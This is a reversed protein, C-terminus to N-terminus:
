RGRPPPGTTRRPVLELELEESHAAGSGDVLDLLLRAGRVGSTYLPQRITSLGVVGALPLDDFGIVSVDEPVRRELSRLAEIVGIAQTDSTAVVATPPDALDFLDRTLRQAAERSHPGTRVYESRSEVGYEVLAEEFGEFRRRGPNFGLPDEIDGVIAVRRHGLELLHETALRGGLRNDIWFGPVGEVEGDLLVVPTEAQRLRDVQRATPRLSILLGGSCRDPSSVDEVRQTREEESSVDYLLVHRRAKSLVDLVGRLREMSAPRTIAPGLTAITDTRGTSLSRALVSPRYSLEEIAKLVKARTTDSVAPSQNLVRSVTGVGVGAKRAVDLITPV